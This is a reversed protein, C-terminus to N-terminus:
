KDDGISYREGYNARHEYGITIYTALSFLGILLYFIIAGKIIKRSKVRNAKPNDGDFWGWKVILRYVGVGAHLVVSVLLVLYLVWVNDSYIRDSSAYVGINEPQTMMTFLHISGLFFLMFGSSIQIFWLDTDNHKMLKSHTRFRQYERYSSPFKRMALLAHFVFIISIFIALLVVFLGTGEELIFRGEFVKTITQMSDKGFLISSEFLLHFIIFIALILGTASQLFDLKAPIRSKKKNKDKKTLSEIINSYM